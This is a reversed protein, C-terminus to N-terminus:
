LDNNLKIDYSASVLLIVTGGGTIVVVAGTLDFISSARLEKLASTAM